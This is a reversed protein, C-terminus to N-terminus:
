ATKEEDAASPNLVPDDAHAEAPLRAARVHRPIRLMFGDLWKLERAFQEPTWRSMDRMALLSSNRLDLTPPNTALFYEIMRPDFLDFAFRRDSCRVHFRKSFESSEFDIDDLGVFEGLKDLFSERRLTLTETTQLRPMLVMFSLDYTVTRRNKGSGSTEKFRYDGFCLGTQIGGVRIEGFLVNRVQRSHGRSFIDWHAFRNDLADNEANFRFGLREAMARMSETREREQKAALVMAYIICGLVALAILVGIATQMASEAIVALPALATAAGQM